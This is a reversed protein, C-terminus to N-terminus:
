SLDAASFSRSRGQHNQRGGLPADDGRRVVSRSIKKLCLTAARIPGTQRPPSQVSHPPIESVDLQPRARRAHPDRLRIACASRAPPDRLRIAAVPREGAKPVQSAPM